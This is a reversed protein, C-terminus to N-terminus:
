GDSTFFFILLISFNALYVKLNIEKPSLTKKKKKRKKQM